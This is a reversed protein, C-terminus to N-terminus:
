HILKHASTKVTHEDLGTNVLQKDNRLLAYKADVVALFNFEYELAIGQLASSNSAESIDRIEKRMMANEEAATRMPQIETILRELATKLRFVESTERDRRVYLMMGTNRLPIRKLSGDNKPEKGSAVIQVDLLDAIIQEIKM